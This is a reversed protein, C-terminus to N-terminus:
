NVALVTVPTNSAGEPLLFINVCVSVWVCECKCVCEDRRNEERRKEDTEERRNDERRKEERKRHKNERRKEIKERRADERTEKRTHGSKPNTGLTSLPSKPTKNM